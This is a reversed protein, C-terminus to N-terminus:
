FDTDLIDTNKWCSIAGFRDRLSIRLRREYSFRIHLQLVNLFDEDTETSKFIPEVIYGFSSVTRGIRACMNIEIALFWTTANASLV